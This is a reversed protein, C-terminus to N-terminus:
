HRLALPTVGCLRFVIREGKSTRCILALIALTIMSNTKSPTLNIVNRNDSGYLTIVSSNGASYLESDNGQVM